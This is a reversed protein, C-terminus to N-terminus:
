RAGEENIAIAASILALHSLGQPFNGAFAGTVPDIEESYLGVDNALDVLEDMLETAQALNGRRALAEALWFSCTVFAGESGRLGDDGGYRRVFPGEGLERQIAAVTQGLRTPDPSDYGHLVGLLLSADLEESGAYRVYSRKEGSWCESEIFDRIARSEALWRTAGPAPIIGSAALRQARDLAVWCMMKSHTFHAPESRVEWIGSDPQRWIQCVYDAIEALRRAIDRDIRRGTEAYLWATEMLEGYIDLQLQAGAANGVRVPRSGRYGELPLTQEATRDSGELRYLVGLRPHTLQSAHMLWWFYSRAEAPCGLRTFADLTFASDRIWSFRYDWNREGGFDEPLSTTAAAALAGSPAHVLLKLALASRLVASQWRGTYSRGRAWERWVACTKEFRADIEPRTPLVLPEQHAFCLAVVADTGAGLQFRAAVRGPGSETPAADYSIVAVADTGSEFVPVGGRLGFRARGTGYGFRPEVSWRMPVSGSDAEIRRQLEMFPGLPGLPLTIADIVRVTGQGTIFTTELVNTDPLYRRRTKFPVEPELVFRGGVKADLLAAFVSPSDLAPFPLWDISGDRAVLAVTRGDGIAAYDEIPAYGRLRGGDAPDALEKTM